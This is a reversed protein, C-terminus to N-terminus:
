GVPKKTFQYGTRTSTLNGFEDPGITGEITIVATPTVVGFVTGRLHIRYEASSKKATGGNVLTPMSLSVRDVSEVKWLNFENECLLRVQTQFFTDFDSEKISDLLPGLLRSREKEYLTHWLKRVGTYNSQSLENDMERSQKLFDAYSSFSNSLFVDMMRYQHRIESVETIRAKEKGQFYDIYEQAANIGEAPSSYITECLLEYEAQPDRQECSVAMVALLFICLTMCNGKILSHRFLNMQTRIMNYLIFKM